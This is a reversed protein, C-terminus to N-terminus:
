CRCAGSWGRWSRRQRCVAQDSRRGVRDGAAVRGSAPLDRRRGAREGRHARLRAESKRARTVFLRVADIQAVACSAAPRRRIPFRWRCSRSSRSPRWVDVARPQHGPDEVSPCAALLESAVIAASLLHEFNDLVLLMRRSSLAEGVTQLLTRGPQERIGVAAAIAGPVLAPDALPALDVFVVGDPFDARLHNAVEIALRTKGSGGAGTLTLLRRAPDRLMAIATAIEESRGILPNPPSPCRGMHSANPGLPERPGRRPTPACLVTDPLPLFRAAHRVTWDM